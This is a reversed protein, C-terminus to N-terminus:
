VPADLHSPALEDSQRATRHRCPMKRTPRLLGVAPLLNLKRGAIDSTDAIGVNRNNAVPQLDQFPDCEFDSPRQGNELRIVRCHGTRATCEFSRSLLKAHM